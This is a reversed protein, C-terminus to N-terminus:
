GGGAPLVSWVEDGDNLPTSMGKLYSVARGNVLITAKKLEDRFGTGFEKTGEEIMDGLSASSWQKEHSGMLEALSFHPRFTAM